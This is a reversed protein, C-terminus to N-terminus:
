SQHLHEFNRLNVGMSIAIFIGILSLAVIVILGIAQIMFYLKLKGLAQKLAEADNQQQATQIATATQLLLIALWIPLWAVILGIGFSGLVYLGSFILQIIALFKIWGTGEALPQALESVDATSGRYPPPPAYPSSM